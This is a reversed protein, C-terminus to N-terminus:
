TGSAFAVVAGVIETFVGSSSTCRDSAARGGYVHIDNMAEIAQVAASASLKLANAERLLHRAFIKTGM